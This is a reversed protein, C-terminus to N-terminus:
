QKLIYVTGIETWFDLQPHERLKALIDMEEITEPEISIVSYSLYLKFLIYNGIGIQLLQNILKFFYKGMIPSSM